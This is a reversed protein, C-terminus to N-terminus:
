GVGKVDAEFPAADRWFERTQELEKKTVKVTGFFFFFCYIMTEIAWYLGESALEQLPM